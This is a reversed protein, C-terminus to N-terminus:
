VDSIDVVLGPLEPDLTARLGALREPARNPRYLEVFGDYPDFLVGLHAGNEVYALMKARLAEINDSRSRIEFIADPCLPPFSEQERPNLAEWRDQRVWSADPSLVSGDNLHFGTSSDFAIGGGTRRNWERLQGYVEGSRVGSKGGTPTVVLRGDRARELQYGPNRASLDRLEADSPPKPHRITVSM